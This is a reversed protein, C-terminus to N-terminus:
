EYHKELAHIGQTIIARAYEESKDEDRLRIAELLQRHMQASLQLDAAKLTYHRAILTRLISEFGRFIMSYLINGSAQTLQYHFQYLDDVPDGQCSELRTVLEEMESMTSEYINSCALRASRSEVMLRFEMLDDFLSHELESSGYSMLAALSQPTPHKRYDCVVTGRRPVIELFSMTELQLIAQNVSSRSIGMQEALDRESPLWDGAKLDGSLIKTLLAQM